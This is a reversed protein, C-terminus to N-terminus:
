LGLEKLMHYEKQGRGDDDKLMSRVTHLSHNRRCFAGLWWRKIWAAPLLWQYKEVSPMIQLMNEASPFLYNWLLRFQFRRKGEKDHNEYGRRLYIDGVDHTAFGFTGGEIIYTELQDLVDESVTDKWPIEVGFWRSCLQFVAGAMKSLRTKQLLEEAQKWDFEDGYHRLFMAIDLFMRIGAGTSYLHKATHYILFCFHYERRLFLYNGSKETHEMADSFFNRYDFGNQSLKSAIRTHMEVSVSGRNYVWIDGKNLECEYGMDLMLDHAQERNERSVLCDIDGMTRLQPEPYFSRLLIGKFFVLIIGKRCFYEAMEEAAQEQQVSQYVSAIYQNRMKKELEPYSERFQISETSLMYYLIPQLSHIKCLYFLDSVGDLIDDPKIRKDELFQKLIQFLKDAMYNVGVPLNNFDDMKNESKQYKM